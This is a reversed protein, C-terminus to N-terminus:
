CVAQIDRSVAGTEDPQHCLERHLETIHMDWVGHNLTGSCFKLTEIRKGLDMEPRRAGKEEYARHGCHFEARRRHAGRGASGSHRGMHRGESM